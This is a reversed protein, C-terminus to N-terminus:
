KKKEARDTISSPDSQDLVQVAVALLFFMTLASFLACVTSKVM